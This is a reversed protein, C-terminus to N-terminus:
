LEDIFALYDQASADVREKTADHEAGYFAFFSQYNAKIYDFTIEFPAVLQELTYKYRGAAQYDEKHIGATIGLALKKKQLKYGSNKGYAWGHTLVEDLWKKFFPPCNFWYFPFQFVVKDYAEILKQEKSIDLQGTPYMEHLNHVVYKDPYKNLEEVWRKNVVSNKLNPHIVIILTQM